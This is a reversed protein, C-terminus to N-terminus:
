GSWKVLYMLLWRRRRDLQSDLISDVEHEGEGEVIIPPPTPQTRGVFNSEYAPELQSVHWVPHVRRMSDPFRLIFSSPGASGIVEFPGLFKDTLKRSPRTTCIFESRLFVRDGVILPPVSIRSHASSEQTREQWLM